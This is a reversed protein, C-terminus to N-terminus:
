KYTKPVEKYIKPILKYYKVRSISYKYVVVEKEM